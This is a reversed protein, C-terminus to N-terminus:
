GDLPVLSFPGAELGILVLVERGKRLVVGVIVM